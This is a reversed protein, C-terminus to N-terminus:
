ATKGELAALCKGVNEELSAGAIGQFTWYDGVIQVYIATVRGSTHESLEFSECHQGNIQGRRWRQPPLVELMEWYREENIKVPETILQKEKWDSFDDLNEVEAGPYRKRIQELTEGGIEGRGTDPRVLDICSLTSRQTYCQTEPTIKM